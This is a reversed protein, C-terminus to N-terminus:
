RQDLGSPRAVRTRKGEEWVEVELHGSQAVGNRWEQVRGKRSVGSRRREEEEMLIRMRENSQANVVVRKAASSVKLAPLKVKWFGAAKLDLGVGGPPMRAAWSSNVSALPVASAM